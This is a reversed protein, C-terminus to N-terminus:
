EKTSWKIPSPVVRSEKEIDLYESIPFKTSPSYRSESIFFISFSEFSEKKDKLYTKILKENMKFITSFKAAQLTAPEEYVDRPTGIQEICGEDMIAVRDSMSLAEEQDHTVFVFTIGLRRQLQKLEIQMSRRLHYDLASLPEDLLLVNAKVMEGVSSIESEKLVGSLELKLENM